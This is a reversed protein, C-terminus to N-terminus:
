NLRLSVVVLNGIMRSCQVGRGACCSRRNELFTGMASQLEGVVKVSESDKM